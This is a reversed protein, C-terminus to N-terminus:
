VEDEDCGLVYRSLVYPSTGDRICWRLRPWGAHLLQGLVVRLGQCRTIHVAQSLGNPVHLCAFASMYDSVFASRTLQDLNPPYSFPLYPRSFLSVQPSYYRSSSPLSAM